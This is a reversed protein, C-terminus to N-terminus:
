KEQPALARWSVRALWVLYVILGLALIAFAIFIDWQWRIEVNEPKLFAALEHVRLLHRMIVMTLMLLMGSILSLAFAKKSGSSWAFVGSLLSVLMLLMSSVFSISAFLDGGMYAMMMDKPIVYIFWTGVAINIFSISLYIASGTKILWKSYDEESKRFLGFCGIYLGSIAFAGVIMHLYRPIIQPDSLFINWGFSNNAYLQQWKEPNLMLTMNNTFIFAIILFLLTSIVLLWPGFAALQEKKIKYVYFLYYGILLIFLVAIWPVAILISSTYYAPGYILQLFLLPVIGQTIAFSVVVPMSAALSQGIRYEYSEPTKSGKITFFASLFGGALAVNMPVAHLFFGLVLLTQLLWLPLPFPIPQFDPISILTDM